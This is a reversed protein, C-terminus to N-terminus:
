RMNLDYIRKIHMIYLSHDVTL